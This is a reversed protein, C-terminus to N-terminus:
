PATVSAKSSPLRRQSGWCALIRGGPDTVTVLGDLGAVEREANTALGGLEAFVVDHEISHASEAPTAPPARDLGPDVGYEERCRYWSTLIEPRVGRVTDEGATFGEWAKATRDLDAFATGNTAPSTGSTRVNAGNMGYGKLVLPSGELM